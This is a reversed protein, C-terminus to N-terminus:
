FPSIGLWYSSGFPNSRFVGVVLMLFYINGFKLMGSPRFIIVIVVILSVDVCWVSDVVRSGVGIDCSNAVPFKVNFCNSFTSCFPFMQSGLFQGAGHLIVVSHHSV